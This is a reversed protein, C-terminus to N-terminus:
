AGKETSVDAVFIYGVGRLTRIMGGLTERDDLRKRLRFVLMDIGRQDPHHEKSTMRAVLQDRSIPKGVESILLRLLAFEAGSIHIDEGNKALSQKKLDLVFRGFKYVISETEFLSFGAISQRRM